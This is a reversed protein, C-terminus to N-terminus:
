IIKIIKINSNKNDILLNYNNIKNHGLKLDQTTQLIM